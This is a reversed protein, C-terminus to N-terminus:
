PHTSGQDQSYPAAQWTAFDVITGQDHVMFQWDGQYTNNAFHNNQASTIADEVVEGMYPSWDPFSGFNSFLGQLGCGTQASCGTLNAATLSFTNDHVTVNQTKWRCDSLYPDAAINTQNCSDTTIVSPNVLTCVGSSTNAPSNCFRDANEWLVVGAWNDTFVNGAIEITAYHNDNAVRSDGGSESIYIAGTPFGPNTPGAVLANRVFTNNRILANYSIEYFFGEADNGSIYNGEVHFGNNDTDAWLGVSKNDHVYNGTVTVNSSQWFKGGGTCGCGPTTTELDDTNNGSIENQDLVVNNAGQESIVQFGYQGNKDLCNFRAVNDSGLFLGAGHNGTITNYEVTWGTGSDHNVVGENMPCNFNQITLHQITVGVAHQTFAYNNLEQGDLIAGPAGIFTSHDGPIIQGFPDTGLTHMGPAFWYTAGATGFDVGSNDGAPVSIAGAPATAPGDLLMANGCVQVPPAAPPGGDPGPPTLDADGGGPGDAPPAGDGPPMADGQAPRDSRPGPRDGVPGVADVGGDLGGDGPGSGPSASCGLIALAGLTCFTLARM